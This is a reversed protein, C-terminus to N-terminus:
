SRVIGRTLKNQQGCTIKDSTLFIVTFVTVWGSRCCMRVYYIRGTLVRYERCDQGRVNAGM